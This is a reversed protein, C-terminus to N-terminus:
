KYLISIAVLVWLYFFVLIISFLRLIMFLWIMLTRDFVLRQFLVFTVVWIQCLMLLIM